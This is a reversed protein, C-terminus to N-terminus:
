PRRGKVALARAILAINGDPRAPLTARLRERLAARREEPLSMCYGPAPAQGGLFPRWYDDFSTFVTPVDLNVVQVAALGAEQWLAALANPNCLPFRVGEDKPRADPDLAIAADWFARMMDMRGAYDWVYAAVAGGSRVARVQEALALQPRPIFNLVLGSIAADASGDAVPLREGGSQHFEVRPDRVAARAASLYGESPEVAAVRRPCCRDLVAQTLAGTGCGVELWDRDPPVALWDLFLAAVPRSWRGVYREYEEANSWTDSAPRAM